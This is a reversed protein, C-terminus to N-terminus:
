QKLRRCAVSVGFTSCPLKLIVGLGAGTFAGSAAIYLDGSPAFVMATPYNLKDLVVARSGDAEVRLLRGSGASYPQNLQWSDGFELVYMTGAGDFAVDIPMTLGGAALTRKGAQDIAWVQGSGPAHPMVSFMTVYLRGDPGFALGGLPPMEPLEAFLRIQGDLTVRLVRGSAADTVYLASGDPAAAMAYPNTPVGSANMQYELPLTDSAFRLLSAVQQPPRRPEVRLVARSLEDDYGEGTLVYLVGGLLVVDTAGVDGSSIYRTYPLGDVVTSVAGDPAIRLVRGSHNTEPQIAGEAAPDRTGAEAVLLNGAADFAMGRPQNLGSAFQEAAPRAGCSALLWLAALLLMPARWCRATLKM